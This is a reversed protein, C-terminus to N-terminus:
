RNEIDADYAGCQGVQDPVINKGFFISGATGCVVGQLGQGGHEESGDEQVFGDGYVECDAGEQDEGGHEQSAESALFLGYYANLFWRHASYIFFRM